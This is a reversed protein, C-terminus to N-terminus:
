HIDAIFLKVSHVVFITLSLHSEAPGFTRLCGAVGGVVGGCPRWRWEGVSLVLIVACVYASPRREVLAM